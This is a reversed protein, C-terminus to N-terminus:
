RDVQWVAEPHECAWSLLMACVAGVNGPSPLTWDPLQRMGLELVADRLQAITERGTKRDLAEFPFYDGFEFAVEVAAPEAVAGNYRSQRRRLVTAAASSNPPVLTVQFSM